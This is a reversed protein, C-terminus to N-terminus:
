IVLYMYLYTENILNITKLHSISFIWNSLHYLIHEEKIKIILLIKTLCYLCMELNITTYLLIM